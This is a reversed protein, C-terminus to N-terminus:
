LNADLATTMGILPVFTTTGYSAPTFTTPLPHGSAMQQLGFARATQNSWVFAQVTLTTAAASMGLYYRGRQLGLPAALAGGGVPLIADTTNVAATAGLSALLRFTEDYIGVDYNSTGPTTGAKFFLERITVPGAVAFPLLFAQGNTPWATSVPGVGTGVQRAKAGIISPTTFVPGYRTSESFGGTLSM